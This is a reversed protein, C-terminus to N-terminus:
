EVRFRIAGDHSTQVPQSRLTREVREKEAALLYKVYGSFNTSNDMAFDYLGKQMPDNLNFSVGKTEMAM